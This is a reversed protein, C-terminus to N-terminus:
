KSLKNIAEKAIESVTKKLLRGDFYFSIQSDDFLLKRIGEAINTDGLIGAVWAAYGRVLPNKDDMIEQLDKVIFSVLDPRVAAIRGMAWVSGPRFMEEERFSWVIPILDNFEDPNNRIIEGLIEAASWGIGGSEDSMSWIMRRTTERIVSVKDGSFARAILGVSEMAKWSIVDEKDYSLSVLWRLVGKDKQAIKVVDDYSGSELLGRIRDKLSGKEPTGEEIVPSKEVEVLETEMGSLSVFILKGSKVSRGGSYVRQHTKLDYDIDSTRYDGDQNLQGIEWDGKALALAEMYAEGANRGTPDCVYVAGCSCKGSLVEGFETKTVAPREIEKGCFPCEPTYKIM